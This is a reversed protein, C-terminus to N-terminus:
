RQSAPASSSAKADSQPYFAAPDIGIASIRLKAFVDDARKAYQAVESQIAADGKWDEVNGLFDAYARYTRALEVENGIEEFLSASRLFYQRAKQVHDKGWGGAATVEGLTRLAVGIQVKSRVQEFLQVARATYERAKMLDGRMLYAKGLGRVAEALLLRDGIEEALQESEKLTDVARADGIRYYTEGVNTLILVIKHRDGIERAVGLAEQFLSLARSDDRQDQAITGLNNLTTVVGVLDGIERRIRLSQEFAELAEKFHGSDQLV